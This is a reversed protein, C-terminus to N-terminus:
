ARRRRRILMGIGGLALLTMTAPEPIAVNTVTTSDVAADGEDSTIRFAFYAYSAKLTDFNVGLTGTGGSGNTSAVVDGISTWGGFDAGPDRLDFDAAGTNAGLFEARFYLDDDTDVKSWSVSITQAGTLTTEFVQGFGRMNQRNANNAAGGSIVWDNGSGNACWGEGLESLGLSHSSNFMAGDGSSFDGDIFEATAPAVMVGILAMLMLLKKM